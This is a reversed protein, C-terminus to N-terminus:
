ECMLVRRVEKRRRNIEVCKCKGEKKPMKMEVRKFM